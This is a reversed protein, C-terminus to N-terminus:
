HLTLLFSIMYNYEVAVLVCGHRVYVTGSVEVSESRM